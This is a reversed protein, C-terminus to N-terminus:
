PVAAVPWSKPAAARQSTAPGLQIRDRGAAKARYLAEDARRMADDISPEATQLEAVGGSVTVTIHNEGHAIPRDAIHRRLRDIRQAAARMTTFPMAIAFEEGGIRGVRDTARM